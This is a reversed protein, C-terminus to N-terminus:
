GFMDEFSASPAPTEAKEGIALLFSDRLAVFPLANEVCDFFKDGRRWNARFAGSDIQHFSNLRISLRASEVFIQNFSTIEIVTEEEATPM